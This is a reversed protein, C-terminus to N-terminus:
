ETREVEKVMEERRCRGKEYEQTYNDENSEKEKAFFGDDYGCM